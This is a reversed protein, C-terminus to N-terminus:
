RRGEDDCECFLAFHNNAENLKQAQADTQILIADVPLIKM